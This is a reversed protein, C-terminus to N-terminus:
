RRAWWAQGYEFAVRALMSTLSVALPWGTSYARLWLRAASWPTSLEGAAM